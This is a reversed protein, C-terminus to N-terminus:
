SASPRLSELTRYADEAHYFQAVSQCTLQQTGGPILIAVDCNCTEGPRLNHIKGTIVRQAYDLGVVSDGEKAERGNKFHM